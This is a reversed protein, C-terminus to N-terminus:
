SPMRHPLAAVGQPLLEYLQATGARLRHAHRTTIPERLDAGTASQIQDWSSWLSVTVFRTPPDVGLYLAHPGYGATVDAHTGERADEVYAELEGPHVEGRYIRLVQVTDSRDFELVLALQVAVLDVDTSEPLTALEPPTPHLALAAVMEGASAWLSVVAHEGPFEGGRRGAFTGVLGAADWPPRALAARLNAEVVADVGPARFRLVRMLSAPIKTEEAM